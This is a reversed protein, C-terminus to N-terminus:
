RLASGGEVFEADRIWGGEPTLERVSAWVRTNTITVSPASENLRWLQSASAFGRTDESM